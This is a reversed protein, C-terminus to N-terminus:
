LNEDSGGSHRIAKARGFFIVETGADSTIFDVQAQSSTPYIPVVVARISYTGFDVIFNESKNQSFQAIRDQSKVGLELLAKAVASVSDSMVSWSISTWPDTLKNRDYM